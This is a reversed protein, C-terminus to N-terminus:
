WEWSLSQLANAISASKDGSATKWGRARPLNDSGQTNSRRVPGGAQTSGCEVAKCLRHRHCCHWVHFYVVGM